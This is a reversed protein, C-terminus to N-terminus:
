GVGGQSGEKKEAKVEGQVRSIAEYFKRYPAFHICRLAPKAIDGLTKCKVSGNIYIIEANECFACIGGIVELYELAKRVLEFYDLGM